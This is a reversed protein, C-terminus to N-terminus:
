TNQASEGVKFLGSLLFVGIVVSHNLVFWPHDVLSLGIVCTLGGLFLTAVPDRRRWYTLWSFIWFCTFFAGWLWGRSRTQELFENHMHATWLEIGKRKFEIRDICTTGLPYESISKKAYTWILSRQSISSRSEDKRLVESDWNRTLIPKIRKDIIERPLLVAGILAVAVGVAAVQYLIRFNKQNRAYHITAVVMALVGGLLPGRQTTRLSFILFVLNLVVFVFLAQSPLRKRGLCIGIGLLWPAWSLLKGFSAIDYFGQLLFQDPALVRSPDFINRHIMNLLDVSAYNILLATSLVSVWFFLIFRQYQTSLLAFSCAAIMGTSMVAWERFHMSSTDCTQNSVYTVVSGLGIFSVLSWKGTKPIRNWNLAIFLFFAPLALKLFNLPGVINGITAPLQDRLANFSPLIGMAIVLTLVWALLRNLSDFRSSNIM